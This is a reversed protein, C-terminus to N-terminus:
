ENSKSTSAALHIRPARANQLVIVSMREYEDAVRHFGARVAPDMVCRADRRAEASRKLYDAAREKDDM